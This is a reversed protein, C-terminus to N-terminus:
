MVMKLPPGATDEAILAKITWEAVELRDALERELNSRQDQQAYAVLDSTSLCAFETM